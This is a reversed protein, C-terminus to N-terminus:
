ANENRDEKHFVRFVLYHRKDLDDPIRNIVMKVSHNKLTEDSIDIDGIIMDYVGLSTVITAIIIGCIFGVIFNIMKSEKNIFFIVLNQVASVLILLLHIYIIIWRKFREAQNSEIIFDIHGHHETIMKLMDHLAQTDSYQTDSGFTIIYQMEEM